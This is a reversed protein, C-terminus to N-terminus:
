RHVAGGCPDASGHVPRSRGRGQRRLRSRALAQVHAPSAAPPPSRGLDAARRAVLDRSRSGRGPRDLAHGRGAAGLLDAGPGRRGDRDSPTTDRASADQRAASGRRGGRRLAAALAVRGSPQRGGAPRRGPCEPARGLAPRHRRAPYTQAPSLPRQRDCGATCLRDCRSSRMGDSGDGLSARRM